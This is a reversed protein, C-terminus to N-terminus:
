GRSRTVRKSNKLSKYEPRRVLVQDRRETARGTMESALTSVIKRAATAASERDGHESVIERDFRPKGSTEGTWRARLVHWRDSTVAPNQNRSLTSKIM